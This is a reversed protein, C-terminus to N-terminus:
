TSQRRCDPISVKDDSKLGSFGKKELIANGGYEFMRSGEKAMCIEQFLKGREVLEKWVEDYQRHLHFPYFELSTLPLRGDFHNFSIVFSSRGFSGGKWDYAWAELTWPHNEGTNRDVRPWTNSYDIVVFVQDQDQFPKGYILTGPPFITWLDVFQITEAEAKKYNSRARFYKDLKTDGSSGGSITDLLLKLDERVQKDKEEKTTEDATRRLDDWQFIIAEYPSYLTVPSERFIHYPYWGLHEKLLDWLDPSLIDIESDDYAGSMTKPYVTKKM